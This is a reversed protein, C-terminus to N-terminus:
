TKNAPDPYGGCQEWPVCTAAELPRYVSLSSDQKPTWSVGPIGHQGPQGSPKRCSDQSIESLARQFWSVQTMHM